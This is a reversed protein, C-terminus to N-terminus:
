KIFLYVHIPAHDSVRVNALDFADFFSIIYLLLVSYSYLLFRFSFELMFNIADVKKWIDFLLVIILPLNDEVTEYWMAKVLRITFNKMEYCRRRVVESRNATVQRLFDSRRQIPALEKFSPVVTMDELYGKNRRQTQIWLWDCTLNKGWVYKGIVSIIKSYRKKVKTKSRRIRAKQIKENFICAVYKM